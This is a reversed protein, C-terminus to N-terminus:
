RLIRVEEALNAFDAQHWCSVHHHAGLILCPQGVKFETYYLYLTLYNLRELSTLLTRHDDVIRKALGILLFKRFCVPSSRRVASNLAPDSSAADVMTPSANTM